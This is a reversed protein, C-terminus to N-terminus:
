YHGVFPIFSQAVTEPQDSRFIPSENGAQDRFRAYVVPAGSLGGMPLPVKVVTLYTQWVLHDPDLSVAMAAIGSLPDRADVSVRLALGTNAIITVRGTPAVPDYIISAAAAPSVQGAGNRYRVYVTQQGARSENLRWEVQAQIPLLQAATFSPNDAAEVKRTGAPLELALTVVAQGTFPQGDNIAVHAPPLSCGPTPSPTPTPQPTPSPTPTPEAQGTLTIEDSAILELGYSNLLRVYVTRLGNGPLLTWTKSPSFPEWSADAFDPSNAVQMQTAWGQGYIALTVQTNDSTPAELNAVVPYVNQRIGFDQTWYDFYPGGQSGDPLRVNSQDDDQTYLGVGVERYITNLINNRHGVSNMWADLVSQATEFGAAINEGVGTCNVYGANGLRVDPPIGNSSTHGFFNNLAMDASHGLAAATLNANAKLPLLGRGAREQNLLYIVQAALEARSGENPAAIGTAQFRFPVSLTLSPDCASGAVDPGPIYSLVPAPDDSAGFTIPRSDASALASWCQLILGAIVLVRLNLYRKNFVNAPRM